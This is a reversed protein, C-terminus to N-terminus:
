ATWRVSRKASSSGCTDIAFVQGSLPMPGGQGGTVVYLTCGRFVASTPSLLTQDDGGGAILLTEGTPSVKYVANPQTAIWANGKHDLAFDDFALGADVILKVEGTPKCGYGIEVSGFLGQASNTWYLTSGQIHIGNIGIQLEETPLFLDDQLFTEYEGSKINVKWIAGIASDAVLVTDPYGPVKTVGNLLGAEPIAVIQQAVAQPGNLDVSWVSFSGAVGAVGGVVQPGFSFNGAAVTFVDYSTEAIGTLSGPGPLTILIEPQPNEPDLQAMTAGTAFNLLLQGNSSRVAVNEINVYGVGSFSNEFQYVLQASTTGQALVSASAFALLTPLLLM